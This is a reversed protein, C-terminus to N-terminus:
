KSEECNIIWPVGFRDVLVAFHTAFFTKQLPMRVIGNEALAKFIRQAEAGDSLNLIVSFGQPKQYSEPPDDAGTLRFDSLIFTAHIIKDRWAPPTQEAMPSDGYKLMFSVKGGLCQGYFEFAEECQGNFSLHPNIQM